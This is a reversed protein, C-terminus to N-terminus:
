NIRTRISWNLIMIIKAKLYIDITKEQKWRFLQNLPEDYIEDFDQCKINVLEYQRLIYTDATSQPIVM